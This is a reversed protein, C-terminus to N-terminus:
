PKLPMFVGIAKGDLTVLIPDVLGKLRLRARPTSRKLFSVYNGNLATGNAAVFTNPKKGPKLDGLGVETPNVVSLHGALARAAQEGQIDRPMRSPKAVTADLALGGDTVFTRGDALHVTRSWAPEPVVASPPTPTLPQAAAVSCAAAVFLAALLPSPM